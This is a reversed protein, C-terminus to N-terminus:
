SRKCVPSRGSDRLVMVVAKCGNDNFYFGEDHLDCEISHNVEHLVDCVNDLTLSMGLSEYIVGEHFTIHEAGSHYSKFSCCFNMNRSLSLARVFAPCVSCTFLVMLLKSAM